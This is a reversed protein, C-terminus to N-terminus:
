SIDQETSRHRVSICLVPPPFKYPCGMYWSITSSYRIFCLLSNIFTENWVEFMRLPAGRIRSLIQCKHKIDVSLFVRSWAGWVSSWYCPLLCSDYSHNFFLPIVSTWQRKFSSMPKLFIARFSLLFYLFSVVNQHLLALLSNQLCTIMQIKTSNFLFQGVFKTGFWFQEYHM